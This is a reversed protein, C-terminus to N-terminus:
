PWSGQGDRPGALLRRAADRDEGLRWDDQPRARTTGPCPGPLVALSPRDHRKLYDELDRMRFRVERGTLKISPLQGRRAWGLLTERSVGLLEAAIESEKETPGNDKKIRRKPPPLPNDFSDVLAKVSALRARCALTEDM